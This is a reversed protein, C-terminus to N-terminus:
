KPLKRFDYVFLKHPYKRHKYIVYGSKLDFVRVPKLGEIEFDLSIFFDIKNAFNKLLPTAEPGLYALAVDFKENTNKLYEFADIWVTKSKKNRQFLDLFKSVLASFIMNELAVVNVNTKKAVYRALGGFGSGVEVINKANKFYANIQEVVAIRLKESSPVFPVQKRIAACYWYEFIKIFFYAYVM